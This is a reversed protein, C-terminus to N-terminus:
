LHQIPGASTAHWVTGCSVRVRTASPVAWVGRLAAATRAPVGDGFTTWVAVAGHKGGSEACETAAARDTVHGQFTSALRLTPPTRTFELVRRPTTNDSGGHETQPAQAHDHPPPTQRTTRPIREPLMQPYHLNWHHHQSAAGQKAQGATVTNILNSSTTSVNLTVSQTTSVDQQTVTRHQQQTTPAVTVMTQESVSTPPAMGTTPVDPAVATTPATITALQVVSNSTTVPAAESPSPQLAVSATTAVSVPGAGTTTLQSVTRAIASSATVAALGSTTEKGAM